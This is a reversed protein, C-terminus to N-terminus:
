RRLTQPQTRTTPRDTSNTIPDLVILDYGGDGIREIIRPFIEQHCTAYGRLNWVDLRGSEQKIGLAEALVNLRRCAFASQIEFNVILVRGPATECGLWPVGYAVALGLYDLTWTKYGKTAGGASLKSGRHMVGQVIEPPLPLPSSCFTAADQIEPLRGSDGADAMATKIRGSVQEIANADFGDHSLQILQEAERAVTRRRWAQKIQRSHYAGIAPNGASTLIEAVYAADLGNKGWAPNARLREVLATTDWAGLEAELDAMVGYIAGNRGDYFQIAQLDCDPDVRGRVM